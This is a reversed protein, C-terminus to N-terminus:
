VLVPAFLDSHLVRKDAVLASGHLDEAELELAKGRGQSRRAAWREAGARRLLRIVAEAEPRPAAREQDLVEVAYSRLLKPFLKGFVAPDAFVDLAIVRDGHVALVGVAGPERAPLDALATEFSQLDYRVRPAEYMERAADTTSPAQLREYSESISNWVTGQDADRKYAARVSSPVHYESTMFTASVRRWRGQETCFCPVKLPGSAAAVLLDFQLTRDQKAGRLIEGAMIFVPLTATNEVLLSNVDGADSVERVSLYGAEIAEDLTLVSVPPASRLSVLPYLLLGQHALPTAVELEGLYGSLIAEPGPRSKAGHNKATAPM